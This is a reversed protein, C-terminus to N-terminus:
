IILYIQFNVNAHLITFSTRQAHVYKKNQSRLTIVLFSKFIILKERPPSPACTNTPPCLPKTPPCLGGRGGRQSRAQMVRESEDVQGRGCHRICVSDGGSFGAVRFGGSTPMLQIQTSGNLHGRPVDESEGCIAIALGYPELNAWAPCRSRTRGLQSANSRYRCSLRPPRIREEVQAARLAM